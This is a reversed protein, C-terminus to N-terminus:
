VKSFEGQNYPLPIPEDSYATDAPEQGNGPHTSTPYFYTTGGVNEQFLVCSCFSM